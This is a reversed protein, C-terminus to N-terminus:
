HTCIYVHTKQNHIYLYICIQICINIYINTKTNLITLFPIEIEWLSFSQCYLQSQSQCLSLNGESPSFLWYFGQIRSDQFFHRVRRQFTDGLDSHSQLSTRETSRAVGRHLQVSRRGGGSCRLCHLPVDATLHCLFTLSKSTLPWRNHLIWKNM